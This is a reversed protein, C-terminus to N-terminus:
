IARTLISVTTSHNNPGNTTRSLSDMAFRVAPYVGHRSTSRRYAAPAPQADVQAGVAVVTAGPGLELGFGISETESPLSVALHFRKWSTTPQVTATQTYGGSTALLTVPNGGLSRLWVSFCYTFAGPTNLIQVISQAAAAGNSLTTARESGWPDAQSPNLGLLPGNTWVSRSFDESWRLLNLAPDLFGFSGRRGEQAVFFEEIGNMEVDSLGEFQLGFALSTGFPDLSRVESGDSLTNVISRFIQRRQLPFQSMTGTSLQPFFAM